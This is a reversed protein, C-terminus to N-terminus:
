SPRRHSAMLRPHVGVRKGAVKPSRGDIDELERWTFGEARAWTIRRQYDELWLLWLVTEDMRRIYEPAPAAPTTYSRRRGSRELIEARSLVVAPWVMWKVEPWDRREMPMRRLTMAAEDLRYAVDSVTWAQAVLPIAAAATM